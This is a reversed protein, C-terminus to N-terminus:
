RSLFDAWSLMFMLGIWLLAAGAFLRVLAPSNSLHMYFVAVLLSKVGAILLAMVTGWIGLAVQNIVVTLVLLGMLVAWIIWYTM